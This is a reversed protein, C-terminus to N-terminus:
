HRSQQSLHMLLLHHERVSCAPCTLYSIGKAYTLPATLCTVPYTAEPTNIIVIMCSRMWCWPSPHSWRPVSNVSFSAALGQSTGVPTSHPPLLMALLHHEAALWKQNDVWWWERWGAELVDAPNKWSVNRWWFLSVWSNAPKKWSATMDVHSVQLFLLWRIPALLPQSRLSFM